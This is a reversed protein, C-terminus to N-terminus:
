WHLGSVIVPAKSASPPMAPAILRLLDETGAGSAAQLTIRGHRRAHDAAENVVLHLLLEPDLERGAAFIDIRVNGVFHRVREARGEGFPDIEVAADAVLEGTALDRAGLFGMRLAYARMIGPMIGIRVLEIKLLRQSARNHAAPTM